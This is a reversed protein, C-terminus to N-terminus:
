SNISASFFYFTCYEDSYRSCVCVNSIVWRFSFGYPTLGTKEIMNSSFLDSSTWSTRYDRNIEEKNKLDFRSFHVQKRENLQDTQHDQPYHFWRLCRQSKRKKKYQHHRQPRLHCSEKRLHFQSRYTDDRIFMLTAMMPQHKDLSSLIFGGGLWDM